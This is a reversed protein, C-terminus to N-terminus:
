ISDLRKILKGFMKLEYLSKLASKIDVSLYDLNDKTILLAKDETDENEKLNTEQVYFEYIFREFGTMEKDMYNHIKYKYINYKFSGNTNNFSLANRWIVNLNILYNLYKFFTDKDINLIKKWISLSIMSRSSREEIVSVIKYFIERKYNRIHKPKNINLNYDIFLKIDKSIHNKM